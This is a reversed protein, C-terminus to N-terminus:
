SRSAVGDIRTTRKRSNKTAGSTLKMARLRAHMAITTKAITTNTIALATTASDMANQAATASMAIRPKKRNM